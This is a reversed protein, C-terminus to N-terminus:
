YIDCMCGYQINNNENLGVYPGFLGRVYSRSTTLTQPKTKSWAYEINVTKLPDAADGAISSFYNFGDTAIKTSDPVNTLMALMSKNRSSGASSGSVVTQTHKDESYQTTFQVSPSLFYYNSVFLDNFVPEHMEADPVLM